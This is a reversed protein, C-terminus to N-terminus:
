RSSFRAARDTVRVSSSRASRAQDCLPVRNWATRGQHAAGSVVAWAGFVHLVAPVEGAGALGVGLAALASILGNFLTLRGESGDPSARLDILSSMADILPCVVLLTITLADIPDHAFTFAAAWAM